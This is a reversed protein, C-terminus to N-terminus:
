GHVAFRLRMTEDSFLSYVLSALFPRFRKGGSLLSYQQSALLIDSRNLNAACDSLYDRLWAEFKEIFQNQATELGTM